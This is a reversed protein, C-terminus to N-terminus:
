RPCYKPFLCELRTILLATAQVLFDLAYPRYSTTKERTVVLTSEISGLLLQGVVDAVVVLGGWGGGGAFCFGGQVLHEVFVSTLHGWHVVCMDVDCVVALGGVEFWGSVGEGGSSGM